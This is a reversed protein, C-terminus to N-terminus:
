HGVYSLEVAGENARAGGAWGGWRHGTLTHTFAGSSPDCAARAAATAVLANGKGGGAGGRM